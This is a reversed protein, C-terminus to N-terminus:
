EIIGDAGRVGRHDDQVTASTPPASHKWDLRATALVVLRAQPSDNDPLLDDAM